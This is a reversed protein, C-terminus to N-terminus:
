TRAALRRAQALATLHLMFFLPVLYAPVLVLPLTAMPGTTVEGPIGGTFGSNLAGSGLAVVLDLIGLLNWVVFASSAAFAPRRTIALAVLPASLGIAMDGLGAPWAFTGPLIGNAYLAVFGFGAFRWAQIATLLRLDAGLVLERFSRSVRFLLLFVVVPTAAGILIPLPPIGPSTLFGGRAGLAVVLAFWVLLVAVTVWAAPPSFPPRAEIPHSLVTNSM